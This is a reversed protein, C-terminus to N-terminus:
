SSPAVHRRPAERGCLAAATRVARPRDDWLAPTCSRTQFFRAADFLGRARPYFLGDVVRVVFEEDVVLGYGAVRELRASFTSGMLEIDAGTRLAMNTARSM